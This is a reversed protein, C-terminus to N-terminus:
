GTSPFPNDSTVSLGSVAALLDEYASTNGTLTEYNASLTDGGAQVIQPITYGLSCMWYIYVIACGTSVADRDTQETQTVWDPFNAQAWAPGTAFADLTGPPTEQEACFRSLGEGNSFGCDWGAGQPGMFSESLEAVYLGVELSVPDTPGAFTADLYMTGGAAFDCGYHYAGGSGDNNGSLPAIIVNVAGGTIGFFNQMDDYPGAAANLLQAALSQGPDGLDPDYYVTVNDVTGVETAPYDLGADAAKAIQEATRERVTGGPPLLVRADPM